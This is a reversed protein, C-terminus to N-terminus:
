HNQIEHCGDKCRLSSCVQHKGQRCYASIGRRLKKGEPRKEDPQGPTWRIKHGLIRTKLGQALNWQWSKM